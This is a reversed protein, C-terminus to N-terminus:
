LLVRLSVSIGVALKWSVREIRATSPRKPSVQVRANLTPKQGIAAM